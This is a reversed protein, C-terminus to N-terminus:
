EPVWCTSCVPEHGGCDLCYRGKCKECVDEPICGPCEYLKGCACCVVDVIEHEEQIEDDSLEQLACASCHNM